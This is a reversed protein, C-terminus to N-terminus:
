LLAYEILQLPVRAVLYHRKTNNARRRAQIAHVSPIPIPYTLDIHTGLLNLKTYSVDMCCYYLGEMKENVEESSVALSM